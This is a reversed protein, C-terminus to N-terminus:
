ISRLVTAVIRMGTPVGVLRITQVLKEKIKMRNNEEAVVEHLRKHGLWVLADETAAVQVVVLNRAHQNCQEHGALV